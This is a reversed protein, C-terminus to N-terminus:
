TKYQSHAALCKAVNNARCSKKKRNKKKGNEEDKNLNYDRM